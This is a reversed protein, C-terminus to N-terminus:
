NAPNVEVTFSLIKESGNTNRDNATVFVQKTQMGKMNKSDFKATIVGEKGPEVPEKPGFADTCGCGKRVNAIVLPKNGTNRFKWTIEVVQGENIKGLNQEPSDIWELTSYKSSDELIKQNLSDRTAQELTGPKDTSTCSVFVIGALLFLFTYKMQHNQTAFTFM